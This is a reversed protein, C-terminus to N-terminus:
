VADIGGNIFATLISQVRYWIDDKKWGLSRNVSFSGCLIFHFVMEAEERSLHSRAMLPPVIKDREHDAIRQIIHDSLSPDMFLRHYRGSDAIRQCAPLVADNSLPRGSGHDNAAAAAKAQDLVDIITGKSQESFLLADDIISDLVEDLSDFHLYFTARSIEAKRCVESVNIRDYTKEDITELLADKIVNITYLTRRDTKREKM